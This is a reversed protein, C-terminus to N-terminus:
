WASEVIRRLQAVAQELDDNVIVDHYRGAQALEGQAAAVRKKLAAESETGRRRLREEYIALSPAQVFVSLHEPCQTRVQEAGQSDIDLVVGVGQQRFPEVESKLTGYYKDLVAAWELFAGAEREREFRAKTWFHYEIGDREAGRPARTTASISLRLPRTSEQIVRQILTSKGSGSPGSVIILPGRDHGITAMTM